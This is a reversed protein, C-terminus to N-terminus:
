QWLVIRNVNGTSFDFQIYIGDSAGFPPEYFYITDVKNFYSIGKNDPNGMIQIVEDKSMEIEIKLSNTVNQKTKRARPSYNLYLYPIGILFMIM